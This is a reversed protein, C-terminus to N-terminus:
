RAGTDGTMNKYLLTAGIMLGYGLLAAITITFINVTNLKIFSTEM